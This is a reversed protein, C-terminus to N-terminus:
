LANGIKYNKDTRCKLDYEYDENDEFKNMYEFFNQEGKIMKRYESLKDGMKKSMIEAKVIKNRVLINVESDGQHLDNIERLIKCLVLKKNEDNIM